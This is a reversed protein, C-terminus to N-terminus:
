LPFKIAWKYIGLDFTNVGALLSMFKNYGLASESIGRAGNFMGYKQGVGICGKLDDSTNAVHFLIDTRNPVDLVEFAANLGATIGSSAPRRKCKYNGEPICSILPENNKWPREITVLEPFGNIVLVGCQAHDDEHTLRLLDIKM